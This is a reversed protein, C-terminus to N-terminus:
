PRGRYEPLTSALGVPNRVNLRLRRKWTYYYEVCQSVSKTGVTKHIRHFDKQYMMFAKKVLRKEVPSWKDSGAYHYSSLSNPTMPWHQLLMKELTGLFDGRSESLSHLAYESNTGGGPCVSSCSMMLLCEVRHQTSSNELADWPTWLVLANHPDSHSHRQDQLPPVDAQFGIGVNIRPKIKIPQEGSMLMDSTTLSCYLGTGERDPSLMPPPTYYTQQVTSRLVSQFVVAGRTSQCPLILPSHHHPYRRKDKKREKWERRGEDEGEQREEELCPLHSAPLRVPVSVPMVIPVPSGPIVGEKTRYTQSKGTQGRLGGHSRMHGNLAPLSKFVRQCVSCLLRSCNPTEYDGLHETLPMQTQQAPPSYLPKLHNLQNLHNLHNLQNLHNAHPGRRETTMQQVAPSVGRESEWGGHLLLPPSLYLPSRRPSPNPYPFYSPSPSPQNPHPIPSSQPSLHPYSYPSHNPHSSYTPNPNPNPIYTPNHNTNPNPSYTPNPNPNPSYTPNPNQNPSYTPNPNPSYTPNPNPKPSYTPNPNPNPNPSYTPNPNPNPNPSYTPKPNPSYTTKPNPSPNPNPNPNHSPNPNPNPNPHPNPNPNPSYTPNTNPLLSYKSQHHPHTSPNSQPHSNFNSNPHSHFHPFPYPNSYSQPGPYWTSTTEVSTLPSQAPQTYLCPSPQQDTHAQTYMYSSQAHTQTQTYSIHTHQQTHSHNQSPPQPPCYGGGQGQEQRQLQALICLRVQHKQSQLQSQVTQHHYHDRQSQVSQHQSQLQSQVSQHQYHDMQSQVSQHQYHGLQSQVSQHQYHDLQSQDAQHQRQLQSQVFQHQHHDVQNQLQSQVSQHQHHHVQNQLQSQVSQHQHHDVQNQQQSQVSQHQHHDVEMQQSQHHNCNQLDLQTQLDLSQQKMHHNQQNQENSYMTQSDLLPDQYSNPTQHDKHTKLQRQHNRNSHNTQQDLQHNKGRDLQHNLNTQSGHNHYDQLTDPDPHTESQQYSQDQTYDQYGYRLSPQSLPSLLQCTDVDSPFDTEVLDQPQSPPSFPQPFPLQTQSFLPHHVPSLPSPRPSMPSHLPSLPAPRPSMPSHLPSLPAPRPSMPSHLPFHRPSLHLGESDKIPHHQKSM